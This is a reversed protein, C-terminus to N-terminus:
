GSSQKRTYHQDFESLIAPHYFDKKGSSPNDPDLYRPRVYRGDGALGRKIGKFKRNDKFDTYRRRLQALLDAYTWKFVKRFDEERITVQAATPDNTIALALAGAKSTRKFSLNVELTVNFPSAAAAPEAGAGLQALYAILKSEAKTVTVAAIDEPV